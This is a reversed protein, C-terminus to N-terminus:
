KSCTDSTLSGDQTWFPGFEVGNYCKRNYNYIKYGLGTYSTVEGDEYKQTYKKFTFLPEEKKHTKYFDVLCLAMWVFLVIWLIVNLIKGVISEKDEKADFFEERLEQETKEEKVEIKKEKKVRKKSVKEKKEEEM